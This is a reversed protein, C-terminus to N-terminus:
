RPHRAGPQDRSTRQLQLNVSSEQIFSPTVGYIGHNETVPLDTPKSRSPQDKCHWHNRELQLTEPLTGPGVNFHTRIQNSNFVILNDCILINRCQIMEADNSEQLMRFVWRTPRYITNHEFRAGDVGVFAAAASSGIITCDRVNIRRAEYKANPPRFFSRGTSGGANISRSGANVFKCAEITIDSSGGKTQVGNAALDSKFEFVCREITGSKCGVMDIASGSSGWNLVTCQSVHFESIGSLKIGDKNGDPGVNSVRLRKLHIAHAMPNSNGGDDINIGNGTAGVFHLDSIEIFSCNSLQLGTSGGKIVPPHAEDAGKIRIPAEATGSINQLSLGGRYFGPQIIVTSGPRVQLLAANLEAQNSATTKSEQPYFSLSPSKPLIIVLGAALLFLLPTPLYTLPQQQRRRIM